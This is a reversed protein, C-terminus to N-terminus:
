PGDKWGQRRLSKIYAVLKMVQEEDLLNRFTPMIRPYGAAIESQPLLISDRIYRDDATIVRGDDLPVPSGYLGDLPPAHVTSGPGHCGSCGLTRFLQAGQEALSPDLDSQALWRAYDAPRMVVLRGGMTSHDTGCFEACTLRYTGPRDATFWLSTYRGPVVDRKLRLAPVYLSHIVDQSAMNLRVPTGAPVHLEDIERQGGPHQVKWMWQKAVLNIELADDPPEYLDIYSSTSWVYFILILLFPILAWSTELWVNRDPAHRRDVKRGRRYRIAFVVLLLFVPVSLAAILLSFALALRDIEAAHASAETIWPALSATM